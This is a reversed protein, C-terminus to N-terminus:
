GKRKKGKNRMNGQCEPCVKDTAAREQAAQAALTQTLKGELEQSVKGVAQEIDSLTIGKQAGMQEAMQRIQDEAVSMLQQELEGMAKTM